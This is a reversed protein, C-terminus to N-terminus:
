YSKQQLVHISEPFGLKTDNNIDWHPIDPSIANSTKGSLIKLGIISDEIRFKFDKNVDGPLPFESLANFINIQGKSLLQKNEPLNIIDVTNLLVEKLRTFDEEPAHARLLGAAGSVFGAAMSTGSMQGYLTTDDVIHNVITVFAPIQSKLLLGTEQSVSVATIWDEPTVLTGGFEGPENNYIIAGVAGLQQVNAIKQYFYFPIDDRKGRKILAINNNVSWPIQDPYGYGCDILERTIGSTNTTAAFTFGEAPYQTLSTGIKLYAETMITEPLTSLIDDGPAMLDTSAAGFSSFEALSYVGPSTQTSAAVSIIGPLDYCAPYLPTIDINTSNNGASCIILGNNTDQFLKFTNYEETSNDVGGFSCNIIHAGQSRAYEIAEIIDINEMTHSEYGQVKLVMIKVKPCVGAIGIANNTVAGITGAIHTGHGEVDFPINDNDAFDWGYIDDIYGNGDDDVGDQGNAEIQNIWINKQLDPHLYDVGTDIVAIVVDKTGQSIEWADYSDIASLGWQQPFRPDNPVYAHLTRIVINEVTKVIGTALYMQIAATIEILPDLRIKHLSLHNIRKLVKSGLFEHLMDMQDPSVHDNFRVLMEKPKAKNKIQNEIINKGSLIPIRTNSDVMNAAIIRYEKKEPLYTYVLANGAGLKQFFEELTIDTLKLTIPKKIDQWLKIRIGTQLSVQDMVCKLPQKKVHISILHDKVQINLDPCTSAHGSIVPCFTAVIFFLIKLTHKVTQM